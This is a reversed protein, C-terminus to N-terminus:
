QKLRDLQKQIAQTLDRWSFQNFGTRTSQYLTEDKENFFFEGNKYNLIQKKM